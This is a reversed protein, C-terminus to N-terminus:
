FNTPMVQLLPRLRPSVEVFVNNITQSPTAYATIVTSEGPSITETVSNPNWSIEPKHGRDKERDKDGQFASAAVIGLIVFCLGCIAFVLKRYSPKGRFM